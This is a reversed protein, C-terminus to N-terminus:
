KDTLEERCETPQKASQAVKAQKKARQARIAYNRAIALKQAESVCKRPIRKKENEM